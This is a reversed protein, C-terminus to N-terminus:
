EQDAETTPIGAATTTESASSTTSDPETATTQTTTPETAQTTTEETTSLTSTTTTASVTTTTVADTNETLPPTTDNDKPPETVIKKIPLEVTEGNLIYRDSDNTPYDYCSSTGWHAYFEVVTTNTVSLTFHISSQVQTRSNVDEGLQQTHYSEIECNDATIVCFGTKATGAKEIKVSYTNGAYLTATQTASNVQQIEVTENNKDSIQISVNTEFNAAKISNSGSTINYSFYAYATLSMAVLCVVMIAITMAVRCLMVKERIRGHKPVHFFENYLKRM